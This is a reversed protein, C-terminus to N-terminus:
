GANVAVFVLDEKRKGGFDVGGYGHHSDFIFWVYCIAVDAAAFLLDLFDAFDDFHGEEGGFAEDGKANVGRLAGEKVTGWPCPFGEAGAGNGVTGVGGKDADDARLEDLLVDAFACAHDALEEFHCARFFGADDEKVLDIGNAPCAEVVARPAVVLDLASHELEDGLEVAEVAPPIDFDHEGGVARGGEVRSEHARTTDIAFDLEGEGVELASGIYETDVGLAHGDLAIDPPLEDRPQARVARTGLESTDGGLRAHEGDSCSSLHRRFFIKQSSHILNDLSIQFKIRRSGIHLIVLRFCIPAPAPLVPPPHTCYITYAVLCCELM